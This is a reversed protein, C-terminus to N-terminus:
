YVYIYVRTHARTHRHCPSGCCCRSCCCCCWTSCTGKSACRPSLQTYITHIHIVEWVCVCVLWFYTEPEVIETVQDCQLKPWSCAFIHLSFMTKESCCYCLLTTLRATSRFPGFSCHSRTVSITSGSAYNQSHTHTHPTLESSVSQYFTNSFTCQMSIRAEKCSLRMCM